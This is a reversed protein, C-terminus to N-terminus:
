RPPHIALVRLADPIHRFPVETVEGLYEGDAQFAIPRRSRFTIERLGDLTVVDRGQPPSDRTHMMQRVAGLTTMTRLRRLAFVDLGSSFDPRPVPSVPHRGLYTWPSSNTVIGLFLHGLPESAGTYESAGTHLTLAPVRRDTTLYYRRTTTRLWLGPTPRRGRARLREMDQVVEADLGLGASFTFYRDGALGLGITRWVAGGSGASGGSRGPGGRAAEAIRRAAEAPDLPFGFSQAFVNAGGGPVPAIAPLRAPGVGGASGGGDPQSRVTANMLGNVTENLTGDGGFPIVLDFGDAAADAALERAHSPYRTEATEVDCGSALERAVRAADRGNATTAHPNTILLARV